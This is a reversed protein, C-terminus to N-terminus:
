SGAWFLALGSKSPANMVVEASGEGRLGAGPASGPLGAMPRRPRATSSDPPKMVMKSRNTTFTAMGLMCAVSDALKACILKMMAAYSSAYPTSSIAPLRSPSRWPLRRSNMSPMAPKASAEASHPSAGVALM